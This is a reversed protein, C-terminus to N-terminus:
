SYQMHNLERKLPCWPLFHLHNKSLYSNLPHCFLSSQLLITRWDLCSPVPSLLILFYLDLCVSCNSSCAAEGCEAGQSSIRFRSLLVPIGRPPFFTECQLYLVAPFSLLFGQLDPSVSCLLKLRTGLFISFPPVFKVEKWGWDQNQPSDSLVRMQLWNWMYLCMREALSNLLAMKRKLDHGRFISTCTDWPWLNM